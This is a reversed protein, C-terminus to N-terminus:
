QARRVSGGAMRAKRDFHICFASICYHVRNRASPCKATEAKHMKANKCEQM